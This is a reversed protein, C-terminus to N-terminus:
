KKKGKQYKELHNKVINTSDGISCHCKTEGNIKVFDYWITYEDANEFSEMLSEMTEIQFETLEELFMFLLSKGYKKIANERYTTTDLIVIDGRSVLALSITNPNTRVDMQQLEEDDRYHTEFYKTFLLTHNYGVETHPILDYIGSRNVLLIKFPLKDIM